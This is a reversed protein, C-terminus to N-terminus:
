VLNVKAPVSSVEVPRNCAIYDVQLGLILSVSCCHDESHGLCIYSCHDSVVYHWTVENIISWSCPSVGLTSGVVHLVKLDSYEM